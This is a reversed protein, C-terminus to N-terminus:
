IYKLEKLSKGLLKEILDQEEKSFNNRWEGPSAKRAFKGAGKKEVPINEFSFKSVIETIQFDNMNIGVFKFIKTLEQKTNKRLDEYMVM